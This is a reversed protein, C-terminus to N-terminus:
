FNVTIGTEDCCARIIEKCQSNGLSESWVTLGSGGLVFVRLAGGRAADLSSICLAEPLRLDQNNRGAGM